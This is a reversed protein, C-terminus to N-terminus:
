QQIEPTFQPSVFHAVPQNNQLDEPSVTELYYSLLVEFDEIPMNVEVKDGIRGRSATKAANRVDVLQQIPVDITDTGWAVYSLASVPVLSLITRLPLLTAMAFGAAALPRTARFLGLTAILGVGSTALKGLTRLENTTENIRSFRNDLDSLTFGEPKNPLVSRCQGAVEIERERDVYYTCIEFRVRLDDITSGPAYSALVPRIFQATTRCPGETQLARSGMVILQLDQAKRELRSQIKSDDLDPEMRHLLRTLFPIIAEQLNDGGQQWDKLSYQKPPLTHAGKSLDTTDAVCNSVIAAGHAHAALLFLLFYVIRRM